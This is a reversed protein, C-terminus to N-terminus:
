GDLAGPEREVHAVIELEARRDGPRRLCPERETEVLIEALRGSDRDVRYEVSM